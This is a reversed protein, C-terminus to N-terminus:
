FTLYNVLSAALVALSALGQQSATHTGSNEGETLGWALNVFGWVGLHTPLDSM